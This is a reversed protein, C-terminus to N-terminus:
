ITVLDEGPLKGVKWPVPLCLVGGAPAGEHCGCEEVIMDKHHDLLVRGNDVYLMSM